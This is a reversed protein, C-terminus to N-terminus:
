RQFKQNRQSVRASVSSTERRQVLHMQLDTEQFGLQLHLFTSFSIYVLRASVCSLPALPLHFSCSSPLLSLSGAPLVYSDSSILSRLSNQGCM